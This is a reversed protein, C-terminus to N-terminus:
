FPIDDEDIEIQPPINNRYEEYEEMRAYPSQELLWECSFRIGAPKAGKAIKNKMMTRLSGLLRNEYDPFKEFAEFWPDTAWDLTSNNYQIGTKRRNIEFGIEIIKRPNRTTEYIAQIDLFGLEPIQKQKRELEQVKAVVIERTIETPEDQVIAQIEPASLRDKERRLAAKNGKPAPFYSEDHFGHLSVVGSLDLIEGHTKGNSKRIIRGCIQRYLSLVKTPRCIVGVDIDPVDFGISIKSVAVICKIAPKQESDLLDNGARVTNNKFSSLAENGTMSDNKSHYSFSHYGDNVLAQNITDAHEISNAFVVCKKNKCNMANMSDVVMGAYKGTNILEDIAASSYDAGSSRLEEYNIEESWKPIYYKLPSVFGGKELEPIPMSDVITDVGELTYGAADYPTGTVGIRARPQLDNLLKKTRDTRWEKHAEDQLVYNVDKLGIDVNEYVDTGKIKKQSRAFYTQSMAIIIKKSPDFGTSHGAKLVSYDQGIEDLHEAIQDVLATINVLIVVRGDLRQALTSLVLSKGFSTAASLIIEKKNEQDILYQIESVAAEQYDRLIM